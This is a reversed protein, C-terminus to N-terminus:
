HKFLALARSLGYVFYLVWLALMWQYERILLSTKLALLLSPLVLFGWAIVAWSVPWWASGILLGIWVISLMLHYAPWVLSPLDRLPMGQAIFARVGSSGRWYEKWFFHNLSIPEGHHINAVRLDSVIKGLRKVRYCLDVDEAAVLGEDFGQCALFDQRWVFMNGAGLWDVEKTSRDRLRHKEWATQVWTGQLPALYHSGIMHVEPQQLLLNAATSLWHPPVEHDADVFALLEGRSIEVGRNRLAGVRLQPHVLVKAGASQAVEASDDSSGNDVVILEYRDKPYDQAQLSELCIALRAADNRVPIVVSIFPLQHNQKPIAASEHM